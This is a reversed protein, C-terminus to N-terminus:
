PILITEGFSLLNKLCEIPQFLSDSFPALKKLPSIDESQSDKSNQPPSHLCQCQYQVHCCNNCFPLHVFHPFMFPVATLPWCLVGTVSKSVPNQLLICPAPLVSPWPLMLPPVYGHALAVYASTWNQNLEVTSKTWLVRKKNTRILICKMLKQKIVWESTERYCKVEGSSVAM